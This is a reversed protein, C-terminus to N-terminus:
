DKEWPFVIWRKDSLTLASSAYPFDTEQKMVLSTFKINPRAGHYRKSIELFTRGSDNIDDVFVIRAGLDM